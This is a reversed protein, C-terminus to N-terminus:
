RASAAANAIRRVTLGRGETALLDSAAKLLTSGVPDLPAM